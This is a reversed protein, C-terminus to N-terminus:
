GSAPILGPDGVNYASEKDDSGGPFGRIASDEQGFIEKFFSVNQM